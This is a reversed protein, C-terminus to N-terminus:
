NCWFVGAWNDRSLAIELRPFLTELVVRAYAALDAEPALIRCVEAAALQMDARSFSRPPASPLSLDEPPLGLLTRGLAHWLPQQCLNEPAAWYDPPARDFLAQVAGTPFRSLLVQERRLCGLFYLVWDIGQLDEPLPVATPYFIDLPYRHAFHLLDYGQLFGELTTLTEWYWQSGQETLATVLQLERRAQTLRNRLIEQGQPLSSDSLTLTYQISALLERAIGTSVSTNAGLHYHLHYSQVQDALLRYLAEPSLQGTATLKDVM